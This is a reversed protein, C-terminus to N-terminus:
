LSDSEKTLRRIALEILTYMRHFVVTSAIFIPIRLEEKLKEALLSAFVCILILYSVQVVWHLSYEKFKM